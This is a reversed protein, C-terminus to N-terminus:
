CLPATWAIAVKEGVLSPIRLPRNQMMRLTPRGKVVARGLPMSLLCPPIKLFCGWAMMLRRASVLDILKSRLVSGRPLSTVGFCRAVVSFTEFSVCIKRFLLSPTTCQLYVYNLYLTFFPHYSFLSHDNLVNGGVGWLRRFSPLCEAAVSAQDLRVDSFYSKWGRDGQPFGKLVEMFTRQRFGYLRDTGVHSLTLFAELYEATLEIGQEYGLVLLGVLHKIGRPSIQRISVKLRNLFEVIVSPIPFWLRARMLHEEYLTFFGEPPEDAREGELPLGFNVNISRSLLQTRNWPIPPYVQETERRGEGLFAERSGVARSATIGRQVFGGLTRRGRRPRRLTGCVRD